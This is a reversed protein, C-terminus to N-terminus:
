LPLSAVANEPMKSVVESKSIDFPFLNTNCVYAYGTEKVWFAVHPEFTKTDVWKTAIIIDDFDLFRLVNYVEKTNKLLHFMIEICVTTSDPREIIKM